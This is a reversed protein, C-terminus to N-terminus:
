PPMSSRQRFYKQLGSSHSHPPAQPLIELPDGLSGSGAEHGAQGVNLPLLAELCRQKAFSFQHLLNPDAVVLQDQDLAGLCASSSGDDETTGAVHVAVLHLPANVVGM